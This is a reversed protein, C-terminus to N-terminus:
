IGWKVYYCIKHPYLTLVIHLSIVIRDSKKRYYMLLRVANHTIKYIKDTLNFRIIFIHNIVGVGKPRDGVGKGVMFQGTSHPINDNM